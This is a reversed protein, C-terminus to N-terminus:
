EGEAMEEVASGKRLANAQMKGKSFKAFPNGGKKKGGSKGKGKQFKAFPNPKAM